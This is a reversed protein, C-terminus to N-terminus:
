GGFGPTAQMIRLMAGTRSTYFRMWEEQSTRLAADRDEAAKKRFSELVDKGISRAADAADIQADYQAQEAPTLSSKFQTSTAVGLRIDQVLAEIRAAVRENFEESTGSMGSAILSDAYEALSTRMLETTGGTGYRASSYLDERKADALKMLAMAELAQKNKAASAREENLVRIRWLTAAIIGLTIVAIGLPSFVISVAKLVLMIASAAGAKLLWTVLAGLGATAGLGAAARAATLAASSGAGVTAAVSAAAMKVLAATLATLALAAAPVAVFFTWKIVDKLLSFQALYTAAQNLWGVLGSLWKIFPLLGTELAAVFRSALTTLGSVLNKTQEAYREKLSLEEQIGGQARKAAMYFENAQEASIGFLKGLVDLGMRRQWGQSQGVLSDGLRALNQMMQEVGQQTMLIEPSAIGLVGAMSFGEPSSMKKVLETIGGAQGGIRKLADEYKAVAKLVEPMVAGGGQGRIMSMVKGLEVSMRGAEDAALATQNVINTLTDAVREFSGNVQYQVITALQAAVATSMGLGKNLMLVTELTEQYNDTMNAGYEVLARQAELVEHFLAGTKMTVDLGASMLKSRHELSSNTKILANNLAYFETALIGAQLVAVQLYKLAGKNASEFARSLAAKAELLPKLRVTEDYLDRAQAKTITHKQRADYIAKRQAQFDWEMQSARTHMATNIDKMLVSVERFMVPYIKFQAYGSLAYGAFQQFASALGQAEQHSNKMHGGIKEMGGLLQEFTPGAM